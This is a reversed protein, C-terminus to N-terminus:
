NFIAQDVWVAPYLLGRDDPNGLTLGFPFVRGQNGLHLVCATGNIDGPSRLWMGYPLKIFDLKQYNKIAYPSSKRTEPNMNRAFHTLSIFNAAEGYSLAFAVDEANGIHTSTPKSYGNILGVMNSGAGLIYKANNQVTFQRLRANAPLKDARSNSTGEGTFWANIYKRVNSNGYANNMGFSTYNWEPYNRDRGYWDIFHARVILSYNGNKAIEIWTATDGTQSPTLIRGDEPSPEDTIDAIVTVKLDATLPTGGNKNAALEARVTGNGAAKGTISPGNLDFYAGSGGSGVISWTIDNIVTANPPNITLMNFLNRYEGVKITLNGGAFDISAAPIDTVPNTVPTDLFNVTITLTKTFDSKSFITGAANKITARVDITTTSDGNPPTKRGTIDILGNTQNWISTNYEANRPNAIEWFIPGKVTATSPDVIAYNNLNLRSGSTVSGNQLSVNMTDNGGLDISKVAEFSEQLSAPVDSDTITLTRTNQEPPLDSYLVPPNFDKTVVDTRNNGQLTIIAEFTNGQLIPMGASSIVLQEASSKNSIEGGPQWSSVGYVSSRSTSKNRVIMSTIRVPWSNVDNQVTVKAGVANTENFDDPGIIITVTQDKIYAKREVTALSENAELTVQILYNEHAEIPFEDTGVVNVYGTKDYQVPVPPSFDKYHISMPSVSTDRLNLINVLRAISYSNNIIKILGRGKGNLDPPLMDEEDADNPYPPWEQSINCDGRKTKYFYLYHEKIAQPDGSPVVVSSKPGIAVTNNNLTYKVTTDWSGQGLAISQKDTVGIKGMTYGSDGM